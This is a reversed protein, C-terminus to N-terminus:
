AAALRAARMEMDDLLATHHCRKGVARSRYKFILHAPADDVRHFCWNNV